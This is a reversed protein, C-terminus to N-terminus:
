PVFGSILAKRAAVHTKLESLANLFQNPSTLYTANSQEGNAGVVFPSIMTHYKDFMANMAAQSFPGDNFAKLKARYTANYMPDDILYRILPWNASVENMTLSLGRAGPGPTGTTSPSGSMAENHDWPIWTLKRTPHNYLYYNHSMTGYSDWNVIANDIALWTLFHTVDFVAELGARWQTPNVTRLPSNLATILGQVDSYDSTKNNKKEFEAENFARLASEPKYLNGKDDGFQDKVMSDDIVEVGGYVGCYRLGAGFDIYVKFFTTRAAPVGGLRFIDATVKERILSNDTRGPSFSLEKFGYFRQGKIAPIADEFENFKLRFPLKYNGQGWASSLTSNGKLRWGVKKWQKGNFKVPVAVYDPDDAPFAGGPGRKSGFDFGWLTMMNARVGTWQAATLTIEITNVAEQPFVVAYNPSIKEHTAATWDPNYVQPAANIDGDPTVAMLHFVASLASSAVTAKVEVAGAAAGLTVSASALGATDTTAFGPTVTAVGTTVAFDVRLGAAGSGDAKTVKVQLPASLAGNIVGTQDAGAIVAVAAPVPASPGAPGGDACAAALCLSVLLLTKRLDM